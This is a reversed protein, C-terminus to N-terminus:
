KVLKHKRHLDIEIKLKYLVFDYYIQNNLDHDWCLIKVYNTSSNLVM